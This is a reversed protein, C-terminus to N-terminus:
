GGIGLSKLLALLGGAQGVGQSIGGFFGGTEPRYVQQLTPTLGTGLFGQLRGIAQDKLGARLGALNTSLDRGAQSLSRNLSSSSLAGASGAGAGFREALGPVIEQEFQRRIPAEFANFAEPQDSLISQLYGFADQTGQGSLQLLTDRLQKQEPSLTEQPKQFGGRQGFLFNRGTKTGLGLAPGLGGIGALAAFPLPM